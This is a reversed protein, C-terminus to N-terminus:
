RDQGENAGPRGPPPLRTVLQLVEGHIAPDLTAMMGHVYPDRRNFRPQVGALDTARGGAEQVLLVGACVDWESKPGRSLYLDGRGAAVRALKYATSGVPEVQWGALAAFDGAAMETRSALVTRGGRPGGDGGSLDGAQGASGAERPAPGGRGLSVPARGQEEVWAGEGLLASFLEDTAPNYVVGAVVQGQDALGICVTFEPRGAVFSRTGDIPDVIWVRRRDLRDPTDASEESLWGYGPRSAMLRDRLLRDAALDAATVPQGPAKYEVRPRTGYWGMVLAGAARAAQRALELDAAPDM